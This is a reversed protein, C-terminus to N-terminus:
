KLIGQKETTVIQPRDLYGPIKVPEVGIILGPKINIKKSEQNDNIASLMYFRPTPSMPSNPLSVCGSLLLAFCGAGLRLCSKINIGQM